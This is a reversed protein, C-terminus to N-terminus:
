ILLILFVSMTTGIIRTDKADVNKEITNTVPNYVNTEVATTVTGLPYTRAALGYDKRVM